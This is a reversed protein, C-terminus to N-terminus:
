IRRWKLKHFGWLLHILSLIGKELEYCDFLWLYLVWFDILCWLSFVEDVYEVRFFLPEPYLLHERKNIM